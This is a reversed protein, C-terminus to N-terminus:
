YRLYIRKKTLFCVKRIKAQNETFKQQNSSIQASLETIKQNLTSNEKVNEKLIKQSESEKSELESKKKELNRFEEAFHAEDARKTDVFMIFISVLFLFNM